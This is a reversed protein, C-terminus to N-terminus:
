VRGEWGSPKKEERVLRVARSVRSLCELACEYTPFSRLGCEPGAYPIREPGFRNILGVLRKHMSEVDELLTNPDMSGRRIAKWIEAVREGMSLKEVSVGHSLIFKQIIEDFNTLCISAKLFKDREELLRKTEGAQYIPDEVHSEIVQLPKVEWFLQNVTSHLHLCTEAGRSRAAQFIREWAKLLSERGESGFDILPDDFTGFVPEDLSIMGVRCHKNATVNKEVIRSLVRGLRIFIQSDRYAFLSALTYPGTICVKLQIPTGLREHILSGSNLIAQVEPIVGVGKLTPPAVEVYGGNVREVGEMMELFMENMDRFQPFNPIDIGARAKDILAKVVWDEFYKAIPDKPQHLYRRAGELLRGYDGPFPLSGVDYSRVALTEM